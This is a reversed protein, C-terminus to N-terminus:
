NLNNNNINNIELAPDVVFKYIAWIKEEILENIFRKKEEGTFEYVKLIDDHLIVLDLDEGNQFKIQLDMLYSSFETPNWTRSDFLEFKSQFLKELMQVLDTIRGNGLGYSDRLVSYYFKAKDTLETNRNVIYSEPRRILM